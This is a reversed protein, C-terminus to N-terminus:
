VTYWAKGRWKRMTKVYDYRINVGKIWKSIHLSM